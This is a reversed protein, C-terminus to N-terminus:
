WNCKKSNVENQKSSKLMPNIVFPVGEVDTYTGLTGISHGSSTSITPPRPAPRMPSNLQYSQLVEEYDHDEANPVPPLPQKPNRSGNNLNLRNLAKEVESNGNSAAALGPVPPPLRVPIAGTKYCILIGNIDRDLLLLAFSFM